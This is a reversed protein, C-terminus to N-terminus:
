PQTVGHIYHMVTGDGIILSEHKFVHLTLHAVFLHYSQKHMVSISQFAIIYWSITQIKNVHVLGTMVMHKSMDADDSVAVM